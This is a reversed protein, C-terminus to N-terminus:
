FCDQGFIVIDYVYKKWKIITYTDPTMISIITNLFSYVLLKDIETSQSNIYFLTMRM